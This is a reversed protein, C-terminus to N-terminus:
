RMVILKKLFSTYQNKLFFISPLAHQFISLWTSIKSFIYQLVNLLVEALTNFITVLLFPAFNLYFYSPMYPLACPLRHDGTTVRETVACSINIAWFSM